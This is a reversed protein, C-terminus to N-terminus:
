ALAASKTIAAVVEPRLVYAAHNGKSEVMRFGAIERFFTL